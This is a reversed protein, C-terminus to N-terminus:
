IKGSFCGVGTRQIYETVILVHRCLVETLAIVQVTCLLEQPQRNAVNTVMGSVSHTSRM